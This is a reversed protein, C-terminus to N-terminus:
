NKQNLINFSKFNFNFSVKQIFRLTFSTRNRLAYEPPYHFSAPTFETVMRSNRSQVKVHIFEIDNEPTQLPLDFSNLENLSFAGSKHNQGLFNIRILNNAELYTWHFDISEQPRLTYKEANVCNYQVEIIRETNNFLTYRPTFSIL